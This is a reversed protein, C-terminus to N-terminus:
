GDDRFAQSIDPRTLGHLMVLAATTGHPFNIMNVMSAAAVFSKARHRLCCVGSVIMHLGMLWGFSIQFALYGGILSAAPGGFAQGSIVHQLLSASGSAQPVLAMLSFLVSLVGVAVQLYGAFMLYGEGRHSIPGHAALKM